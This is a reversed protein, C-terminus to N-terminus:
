RNNKKLIIYILCVVVAIVAGIVASRVYKSTSSFKIGTESNEEELTEDVDFEITEIINKIQERENSNISSTKQVTITYSDGNVVTYYEVLYYGKDTYDLYAYKYNNKYIDYNNSNQKDDLGKAIDLIDDDTYNSFNIISDAKTKRIIFELTNTNDNNLFIADLYIYNDNMTKNFSDYDIGLKDLNPNNEINDRTFVNWENTDFEISIDTENIKFEEAYVGVPLLSLLLFTIIIILISKKM